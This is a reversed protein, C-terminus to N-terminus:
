VWTCVGDGSLANREQWCDLALEDHRTNPRGLLRSHHPKSCRMMVCGHGLLYSERGIM